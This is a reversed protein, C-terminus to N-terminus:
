TPSKQATRTRIKIKEKTVRFGFSLTLKLLFGDFDYLNLNSIM